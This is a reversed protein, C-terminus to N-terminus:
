LLVEQVVPTGYSPSGTINTTLLRYYKGAPIIGSVTATATQTLNLGITLTGTNGNVSPNVTVLNTTFTNNDAYQLTVKGTQGTTLSLTASIDVAAAVFADRTTSAQRATNVALSPTSFSRSTMPKGIWEFSSPLDIGNSTCYGNIAPEVMELITDATDSTTVNVVPQICGTNVGTSDQLLCSIGIGSGGNDYGLLFAKIM